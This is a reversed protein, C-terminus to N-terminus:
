RKKFFRGLLPLNKLRQKFDSVISLQHHVIEFSNTINVLAGLGMRGAALDQRLWENRLLHEYRRHKDDGAVVSNGYDGGQLFVRHHYNALDERILGIEHRAAFRLHFDWDGLVPLDERFLGVDNMAARSFVFSIPPFTNSAALRYLSIGTMWSNFPERDIIRVQQGDFEELVRTSYTVVGAISTNLAAPPAELFSVTRELFTPQWSDDDDHIVIFDSECARIGVNSAAEMGLSRPNHILMLREQYADKYPTLLQEIIEPSGGDNVIVHLWEAYTQGLVSEIARKLLVTRNKTRTIIAIRKHQM